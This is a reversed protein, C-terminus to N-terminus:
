SESLSLFAGFELLSGTNHRCMVSLKASFWNQIIDNPVKNSDAQQLFM